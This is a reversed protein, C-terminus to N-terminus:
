SQRLYKIELIVFSFLSLKLQVFHNLLISLEFCCLNLLELAVDEHSHVVRPIHVTSYVVVLLRYQNYSVVKLQKLFQPLAEVAFPLIFLCHLVIGFRQHQEVIVLGNNKSQTLGVVTHAISLPAKIM